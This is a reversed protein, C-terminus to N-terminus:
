GARHSFRLVVAVRSPHDAVLITLRKGARHWRDAPRPEFRVVRSRLLSHERGRVLRTDTSRPRIAKPPSNSACCSAVTFHNIAVAQPSQSICGIQERHIHGVGAMIVSDDYDPHHLHPSEVLALARRWRWDPASVLKKRDYPLRQYPVSV